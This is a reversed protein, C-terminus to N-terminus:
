GARGSLEIDRAAIEGCGLGEMLSGASATRHDDRQVGAIGCGLGEM